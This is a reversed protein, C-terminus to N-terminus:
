KDNILGLSIAKDSCEIDESIINVCGGKQTRFINTENPVPLSPITRFPPEFISVIFLGTIFGIFVWLLSLM